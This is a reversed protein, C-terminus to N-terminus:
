KRRLTLRRPADPHPPITPCQRRTPDPPRIRVCFPTNCKIEQTTETAGTDERKAEMEETQKPQFRPVAFPNRKRLTVPPLIQKDEFGVAHQWALDNMGSDSDPEVHHNHEYDDAWGCTDVPAISPRTDILLRIYLIHCHRKQREPANPTPEVQGQFCTFRLPRGHMEQPLALTETV